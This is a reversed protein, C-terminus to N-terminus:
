SKLKTRREVNTTRRKAPRRESPVAGIRSGLRSAEILTAMRRERTEERKASVVYHVAVRRYWPAESEFYTWAKKDQKFRTLDAPSLEAAEREFSYRATAAADRREFAAQGAPHMRGEGILEHARKTNVASWYSRATRPTFRQIYREADLSRRVGDIWGFCLAEDVSEKYSIGRKKVSVKYFGLWVESKTGHHKELWRRFAGPNKFFIPKV